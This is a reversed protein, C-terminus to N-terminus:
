VVGLETYLRLNGLALAQQLIFALLHLTISIDHPWARPDYYVVNIAGQLVLGLGPSERFVGLIVHHAGFTVAARGGVPGGFGQLGREAEATVSSGDPLAGLAGQGGSGGRGRVAQIRRIKHWPETM